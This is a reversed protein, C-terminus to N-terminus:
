IFMAEILIEVLINATERMIVNSLFDVNIISVCYGLESFKFLYKQFVQHVIHKELNQSEEPPALLEDSVKHVVFM